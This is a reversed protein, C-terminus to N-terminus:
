VGAGAGGAVVTVTVPLADTLGVGSFRLLLGDIAL